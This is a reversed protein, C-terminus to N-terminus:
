GQETFAKVWHAFTVGDNKENLSGMADDYIKEPFREKIIPLLAQVYDNSFEPHGQLALIRSGISYAGFGCESNSSLLKAGAPLKVVQDQHIYLINLTNQLPKMWQTNTFETAKMGLRWGGKAREVKGKLAQAIIQHGFCLGVLYKDEKEIEQILEELRSIWEFGDYVSYTSGTIIFLDYNEVRKPFQDEFVRYIDFTAQPFVTSFFAKYKYGDNPHQPELEKKDPNAQLIAIKNINSM